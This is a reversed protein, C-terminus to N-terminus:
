QPLKAAATRVRLSGGDASETWAFIVEGNAVAARVCDWNGAPALLEPSEQVSSPPMPALLPCGAAFMWAAIPAAFQARAPADETSSAM